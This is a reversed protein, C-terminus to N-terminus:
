EVPLRAVILLGGVLVRILRYAQGM